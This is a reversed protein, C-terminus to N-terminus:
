RGFHLLVIETPAPEAEDASALRAKAEDQAALVRAVAEDLIRSVDAKGADDLELHMRSVYALPDDFGGGEVAAGIDAAIRRLTDGVLTRRTSLPLRAWAVDDFWPRTVTRYFHETAGRRPRTSVLEIAGLQALLRVHHAVRGLPEGLKQAIQNPSSVQEDLAVLVRFRLPHAVARLMRDDLTPARGENM